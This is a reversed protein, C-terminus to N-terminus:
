INLVLGFNLTLFLQNESRKSATIGSDGIKISRLIQYYSKHRQMNQLHQQNDNAISENNTRKLFDSSTRGNVNEKYAQGNWIQHHTRYGDRQPDVKKWTRVKAVHTLGFSCTTDM